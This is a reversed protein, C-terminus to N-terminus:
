KNDHHKLKFLVLPMDRITKKVDFKENKSLETKFYTAFEISARLHEWVNNFGVNNLALWVWLGWSDKSPSMWDKKELKQKSWYFGVGNGVGLAKTGNTNLSDALDFCNFLYRLEPLSSYVGLHASDIHLWIDYKKCVKHINEVDDITLTATTGVTCIFITPILGESIDKQIFSEIWEVSLPYEDCCNTIAEQPIKWAKM